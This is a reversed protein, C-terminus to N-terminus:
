CSNGVSMIASFSTSCSRTLAKRLWETVSSFRHAASLTFKTKKMIPAAGAARFHVLVKLGPPIGRLSTSPASTPTTASTAAAVADVPPASEVSSVAAEQTPLDPPAAAARVAGTLPSLTVSQVIQRGDAGQYGLPLPTDSVPLPAAARPPSSM